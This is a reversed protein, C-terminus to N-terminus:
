KGGPYNLKFLEIFEDDVIEQASIIAKLTISSKGILSAGQTLSGIFAARLQDNGRHSQWFFRYDFNQYFTNMTVPERFLVANNDSEKFMYFKPSVSINSTFDLQEIDATLTISRFYYLANNLIPRITSLVSPTDNWTYYGISLNATSEYVFQIPPSTNYPLDEARPVALTRIGGILDYIANIPDQM